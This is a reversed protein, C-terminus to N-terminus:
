FLDPYGHVVADAMSPSAGSKVLNAPLNMIRVGTEAPWFGLKKLDTETLYDDETLEGFDLMPVDRWIVAKVPLKVQRAVTVFEGVMPIRHHWRKEKCFDGGTFVTLAPHPSTTGRPVSVLLSVSRLHRWALRFLWLWAAVECTPGVLLAWWPLDRSLVFWFIVISGIVAPVHLGPLPCFWRQTL